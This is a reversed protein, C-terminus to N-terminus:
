SAYLGISIAVAAVACVFIQRYFENRASEEMWDDEHMADVLTSFSAAVLLLVLGWWGDGIIHASSYASVWIIGGGLLAVASGTAISVLILHDEKIEYKRGLWNSVDFPLWGLKRIIAGVPLLVNVVKLVVTPGIDELQKGLELNLRM